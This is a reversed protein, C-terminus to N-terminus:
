SLLEEGISQDHSGEAISVQDEGSTLIREIGEQLEQDLAQREQGEMKQKLLRLGEELLRSKPMGVHSSTQDLWLVFSSSITASIIKRGLSQM